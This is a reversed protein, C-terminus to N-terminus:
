FILSDSATMRAQTPLFRHMRAAKNPGSLEERASPRLSDRSM